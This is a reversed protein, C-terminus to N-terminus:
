ALGNGDVDYGSNFLKFDGHYSMAGCQAWKIEKVKPAKCNQTQHQSKVPSNSFSSFLLPKM